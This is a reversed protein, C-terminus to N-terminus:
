CCHTRMLRRAISGPMADNNAENTEDFYPDSCGGNISSRNAATIAKMGDKRDFRSRKLVTRTVTLV